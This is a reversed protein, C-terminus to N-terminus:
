GLRKLLEAVEDVALGEIRLGHPGLVVLHSVREAPRVITVPRLVPMRRAKAHMWHEVTRWSMGLERAAARLTVGQARRATVHELVQEHLDSPYRTGRGRKGLGLIRARLRGAKGQEGM